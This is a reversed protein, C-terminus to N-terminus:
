VSNEFIINAGKVISTFSMDLLQAIGGFLYESITRKERVIYLQQKLLVIPLGVSLSDLGNHSAFGLYHTIIHDHFRLPFTIPLLSGLCSSARPVM